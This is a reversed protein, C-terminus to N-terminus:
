RAQPMGAPIDGRPYTILADFVDYPVFTHSTGFRNVFRVRQGALPGSLDLYANRDGARDAMAVLINSEPGSARLDYAFGTADYYRALGYGRIPAAAVSLVRGSTDPRADLLRRLNDSKPGNLVMTKQTHNMGANIVLRGGGARARDLFALCRDLILRERAEDSWAARIPASRLEYATLDDLRALWAEGLGAPLLGPLGARFSELRDKAYSGDKAQPGLSGDRLGALAASAELGREKGVAVIAIELSLSFDDSAHNMDFYGVTVRDSEPLTANLARLGELWPGDLEAVFAPLRELRGSVYDEVIWSSAAVGEHVISRFGTPALRAMLAVMFAQHSDVYHTEGLLLVSTDALTEVLVEPVGGDFAEFRSSGIAADLARRSAPLGWSGDCSSLGLAMSAIALAIPLSARPRTHNM